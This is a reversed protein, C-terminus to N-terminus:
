KKATQEKFRNIDKLISNTNNGFEAIWGTPTAFGAEKGLTAMDDTVHFAELIITPYFAKDTVQVQKGAWNTSM